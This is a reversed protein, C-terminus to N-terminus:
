YGTVDEPQFGKAPTPKQGLINKLIDNMTKRDNDFGGHTESNTISPARGAYHIKHGAKAPVESKFKEMGLLPMKREDEFANSVFYLLSKRYPGVSDDEERQDILNYQWLKSVGSAAGTKGIRPLYSKKFLDVTCAPAMLSCSKVPTKLPNMADVADLLHAILISGASHGVLHVQLPKSRRSNGDLLVKLAQRGGGTSKFSQDADWKMDRWVATGPGRAISELVRDFFDSLGGVRAEARDRSNFIVDTLSEFFGTEWMFHIPYIGNRKFVEKM